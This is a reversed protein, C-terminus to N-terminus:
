NIHSLCIKEEAARRIALGRMKRGGASDWYPLQKCAGVVDGEKLKRLMTSMRGSKLVVFGDKVGKKGPGVNLIFSLFAAYTNPSLKEVIGPPVNAQFIRDAENLDELTKQDCEEETAVDGLSVGRTHGSCITPIRVPDLYAVLERGEFRPVIEVAIALAAATITAITRKNM